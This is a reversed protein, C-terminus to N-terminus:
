YGAGEVAMGGNGKEGKFNEASISRTRGKQPLYLGGM